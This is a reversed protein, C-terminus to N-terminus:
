KLRQALKNFYVLNRELLSIKRTIPKVPPKSKSLLVALGFLFGIYGVYMTLWALM